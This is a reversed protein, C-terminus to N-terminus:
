YNEHHNKHILFNELTPNTKSVLRVRVQEVLSGTIAYYEKWWKNFEKQFTTTLASDFLYRPFMLQRYWIKPQLVRPARVPDQLMPQLQKERRTPQRLVTQYLHSYVRENM